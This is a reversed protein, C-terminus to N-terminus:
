EKRRRTKMSGKVGHSEVSSNVESREELSRDKKKARPYQCHNSYHGSLNCNWCIVSASKERAEGVSSQEEVATARSTSRKEVSTAEGNLWEDLNLSDDSENSLKSTKASVLDERTPFVEEETLNSVLSMM